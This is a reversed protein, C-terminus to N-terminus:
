DLPLLRPLGFHPFVSCDAFWTIETIEDGRVSLVILGYPRAVADQECPLYCALAPQTNARTPVLRLSAVRLRDRTKLFGGIAHRGRYTEGDPPMSLRADSSLLMVVEHLDGAEVAAAFAAAVANEQETTGRPSRDRPSVARAALGERARALASKVAAESIDLIEAVEGARFGLVDRLVLVTRQRAPLHQLGVIFALEMSERQEYVAEPGAATDPLGELLVDPFPQVWVPEDPATAPHTARGAAPPRRRGARLANLCRNTAIRYLWARVARVERVDALARWAALLTEQVVDEADQVSGLIRYCHRLLEPRWPETLARFADEDGARALALTSGDPEHGDRMRAGESM